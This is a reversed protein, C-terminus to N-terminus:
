LVKVHVYMIQFLKSPREERDTQKLGYEVDFKPSTFPSENYGRFVVPTRPQARNAAGKKHETVCCTFGKAETFHVCSSEDANYDQGLATALRSTDGLICWTM